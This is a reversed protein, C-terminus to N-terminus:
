KILLNIIVNKNSSVKLDCCPGEACSDRQKKSYKCTLPDCCTNNCLKPLGCDCEEGPDVVM